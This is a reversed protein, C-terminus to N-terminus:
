PNVGGSKLRPEESRYANLIDEIEAVDQPHTERYNQRGTRINNLHEEINEGTIMVGFYNQGSEQPSFICDLVKDGFAKKFHSDEWHWKMETDKDGAPPITETTYENYVSFDWLAFPSKNALSAEEENIKVLTRKWEEYEPWLGVAAYVEGLRVHNPSIAMCLDIDDHYAIQLIKRYYDFSNQGTEPNYFRVKNQSLERIYNKEKDIFDARYGESIVLNEANCFGNEEYILTNETRNTLNYIITNISSFFADFSFLSSIYDKIYFDGNKQGDLSVSLRLEDFDTDVSYVDFAEFDLLLVVQKVPYIANAHQFYRAIEYINAGLIALNYVPQYSWGEHEPDIGRIARSTGLIIAEPKIRKVAYTKVLRIHDSYEPKISNFRDVKPSNYISYPDVLVNLGAIIILFAIFFIASYKLYRGYQLHEM